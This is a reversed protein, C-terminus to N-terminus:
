FTAYAGQVLIRITKNRYRNLGFVERLIDVTNLCAEDALRQAIRLWRTRVKGARGPRALLRNPVVRAWGRDSAVAAHDFDARLIHHDRLRRRAILDHLGRARRCEVDRGLINIEAREYAQRAGRDAFPFARGGVPSKGGIEILRDGPTVFARPSPELHDAAKKREVRATDRTKDGTFTDLRLRSSEIAAPNRCVDNARELAFRAGSVPLDALNPM